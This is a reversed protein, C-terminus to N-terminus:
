IDSRRAHPGNVPGLHRDLDHWTRLPITTTVLQYAGKHVEPIARELHQALENVAETTMDKPLQLIVYRHYPTFAGQSM